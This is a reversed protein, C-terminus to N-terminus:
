KPFIIQSMETYINIHKFTLGSDMCNAKIKLSGSEDEEAHGSTERSGDKSGDLSSLSRQRYDCKQLLQSSHCM